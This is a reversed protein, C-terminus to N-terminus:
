KGSNNSDKTMQKKNFINMKLFPYLFLLAFAANWITGYILLEGTSFGYVAGSRFADNWIIVAVAGQLFWFFARKQQRYKMLTMTLLFLSFLGTADTIFGIISTQSIVILDAYLKRIEFMAIVGTLLILFALFLGYSAEGLAKPPGPPRESLKTKPPQYEKM